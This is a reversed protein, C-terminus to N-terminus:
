LLEFSVVYESSTKLRDENYVEMEARGDTDSQYLLLRYLKNPEEQSIVDISELLSTSFASVSLSDVTATFEEDTDENHIKVKDGREIDSMHLGM